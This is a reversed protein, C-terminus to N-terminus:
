PANAARLRRARVALFHRRTWAILAILLVFLTVPSTVVVEAPTLTLALLVRLGAEALFAAGWVLTILRTAHRFEPYQWLGNWWAIREPDDGAVFQRATYFILPREMVLSGLCIVGFVGTLFSEKILAFFVSGSILSGVTGAALMVIIIVGLPELRRSQMWTRLNNLAPPLSGAALSWLTSVGYHTLLNFVAIPAIVDFCLMPLMQVFSFQPPTNAAPASMIEFRHAMLPVFNM